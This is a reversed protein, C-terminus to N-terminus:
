KGQRALEAAHRYQARFGDALKKALQVEQIHGPGFVDRIPGKAADYSVADVNLFAEMAQPPFQAEILAHWAETLEDHPDICMVRVIYGIPKFLPGTWGSHYSFSGAAAYPNVDPDSRFQRYEPAYVAPLIPIRRLAYRAPGGPTGVKWDWLKQGEESLSWAIFERALDPHPAGRFLGIPDASFTTDGKATVFQLRSSGDPRAVSESQVRGYFDITMGAAADGAAVDLSIKSSSDTFYRANAGIKLLLQMARKWGTRVAETEEAPSLARNVAAKRSETELLIQQQILLEFARNVSGSQTPNALAVEHYLRADALDEWQSPATSIGLRGLSDTNYCIGFAALCVGIWRGEPDWYSEGGLTRPIAHDNFLEPHESVFGCDVLRGAAAQQAYDFTGGGFFLDIGCGVKSNLFARRAKQAETDQDPMAAPTTRSNDFNQEVVTSWVRGPQAEWAQHFSSLYESAVYRAIESTGGPTRWDVRVREGTKALHYAAFARAFEERIAENHPTIIVIEREGPVTGHEGHPRMVIPGILVALLAIALLLNKLM